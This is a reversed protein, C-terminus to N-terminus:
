RIALLLKSMQFPKTVINMGVGLFDERNMNEAYGTMFLIPLAPHERRASDALDRGNMGPLGVHTLFLGIGTSKALIQLAMHADEVAECRYGATTLVNVVLLRVSPMDEVLLIKEGRGLPPASSKEIGAM